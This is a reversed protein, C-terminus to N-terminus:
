CATSCSCSAPWRSGSRRGRAAGRVLRDHVAPDATFLPGLLPSAVRSCLGTVVGSWLGWRVMRDTVARTGAVDGAGLYRGTIAQAAIAIADLM